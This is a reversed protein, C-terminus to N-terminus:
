LSYAEQETNCQSVQLTGVVTIPQAIVELYKIDAGGPYEVTHHRDYQIDVGGILQNIGSTSGHGVVGEIRVILMSGHYATQYSLSHSDTLSVDYSFSPYSKSLSMVEGPALIASKSVDIKWLDMTDHCDSPYILPSAITGNSMDSLSNSMSTTVGISTDKRVKFVYMTCKVPVVYNNKAIMNSYSSTIRVQNQFTPATLDVNILTGPTAPDFYKVSDIASEIIATSNFANSFYAAEGANSIRLTSYDRLKKKYTATNSKMQKSIKSVKKSLQKVQSQRIKRGKRAKLRPAKRISKRVLQPVPAGGLRQSLYRAVPAYKYALSAGELFSKAYKKYYRPKYM